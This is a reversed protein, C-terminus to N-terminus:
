HVVDWLYDTHSGCIDGFGGAGPGGTAEMLAARAALVEAHSAGTFSQLRRYKGGVRHALWGWYDLKGEEVLKNLVPAHTRGVIDDADEERVFDCEYYVSLAAKPEADEDDGGGHIQAWIYDDHSACANTRTQGAEQNNQYIEAFIKAQNDLVAEVTPATHFQLRRWQGGTMHAYYGWGSMRGDKVAKDLVPKDYEAIVDDLQTQTALDCIHYTAYVFEAPGEDEQAMCSMAAFVLLVAATRNKNNNM